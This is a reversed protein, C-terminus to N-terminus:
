VGVLVSRDQAKTKLKDRVIEALSAGTAIGFKGSLYQLLMGM